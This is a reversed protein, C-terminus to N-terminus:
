AGSDLPPVSNGRPPVVHYDGQDGLFRPWYAILVRNDDSGGVVHHVIERPIVATEGATVLQETADGHLKALQLRLEGAVVHYAESFGKHYHPTNDTFGSVLRLEFGPCVDPPLVSFIREEPNVVVPSHITYGSSPAISVADSEKLAGFVRRSDREVRLLDGVSSEGIRYMTGPWLTLTEFQRLEVTRRDGLKPHVDFSVEGHLATMSIVQSVAYVGQSASCCLITVADGRELHQAPIVEGPGPQPPVPRFLGRLDDIRAPQPQQPTVM